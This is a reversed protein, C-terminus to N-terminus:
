SPVQGDSGALGPPGSEHSGPVEPQHDQLRSSDTSGHSGPGPQGPDPSPAAETNRLSGGIDDADQEEALRKTYAVCIAGPGSTAWSTTLHPLLMKLMRQLEAKQSKLDQIDSLRAGIRRQQIELAYKADGTGFITRWEKLADQLNAVEMLAMAIVRRQLEPATQDFRALVRDIDADSFQSIDIREM